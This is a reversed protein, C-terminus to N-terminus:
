GLEEYPCEINGRTIPEPPLGLEEEEDLIVSAGRAIVSSKRSRSWCTLENKRFSTHAEREVEHQGDDAKAESGYQKGFLERGSVGIGSCSAPEDGLELDSYSPSSPNM